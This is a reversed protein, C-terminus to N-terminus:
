NGFINTIYTSLTKTTTAGNENWSVDVTVLKTDPDLIGPTLVIDKTSSDRFVRGTTITRDFVGDILTASSTTAWATGNWSIRTPNGVIISAIKENWSIDRFIKVVEVGEDLLYVAKVTNLSEKSSKMYATFVSTVALVVMLLIAPVVVVEIISFAHRYNKSINKQLNIKSM